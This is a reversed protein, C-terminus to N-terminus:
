VLMDSVLCALTPPAIDAEELFRHSTRAAGDSLWETWWGTHAHWVLTLQDSTWEEGSPSRGTVTLQGSAPRGTRVDISGVTIGRSRLQHAVEELYGVVLGATGAAWEGRITEATKTTSM